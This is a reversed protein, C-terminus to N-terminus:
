PLDLMPLSAILAAARMSRSMEQEVTSRHGCTPCVGDQTIEADAPPVIGTGAGDMALARVGALAASGGYAGEPVGAVHM